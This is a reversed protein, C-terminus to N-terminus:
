KEIEQILDVPNVVKVSLNKVRKANRLLQDDCTCFYDANGTEALAVHLADLPKIGFKM